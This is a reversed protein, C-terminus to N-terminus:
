EVVRELLRRLALPDRADIETELKRGILLERENWSLGGGPKKMTFDAEELVAGVPKTVKVCLSRGFVQRLSELDEAVSNKDGQALILDKSAAFQALLEFEEVTLSSSADVGFQRRDFVVHAELFKAGLTLAAIGVAVNGSHDSYGVEFGSLEGLREMYGLSIRDEPTPYMSTCHMLATTHRPRGALLQSASVIEDENAMGTSLILQGEYSRLHELMEANNLDGSGVKITTVGLDFLRDIAERSFPTCVFEINNDICSDRLIRWDRPSFATRKWYDFRSKDQKFYPNRFPEQFTSEFEPLHMQFKVADVGADALAEVYRIAVGLSGEHSLGVEGIIKTTM